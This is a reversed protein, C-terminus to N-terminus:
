FGFDLHRLVFSPSIILHSPIAIDNKRCEPKTSGEAHSMRAEDTM